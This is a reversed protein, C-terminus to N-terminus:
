LSSRAIIIDLPASAENKPKAPTVAAIIVACPHELELEVVGLGSEPEVLGTSEPDVVGVSEPVDAGASEPVDVGVSEPDEVGVSAPLQDGDFTGAAVRAPRVPTATCIPASVPAYLLQEASVLVPLHAQM